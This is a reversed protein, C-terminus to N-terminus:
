DTRWAKHLPASNTGTVYEQISPLHAVRKYAHNLLSVHRNREQLDTPLPQKYHQLQIGEKLFAKQLPTPHTEFCVRNALDILLARRQKDPFHAIEHALLKFLSEQYVHETVSELLQFQDDISAYIPHTYNQDPVRLVRRDHRRLDKCYNQAIIRMLHNLARIPNAEGHKAKQSHELLRRMTEQM